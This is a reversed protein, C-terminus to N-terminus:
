RTKHINSTQEEKKSDLFLEHRSKEEMLFEIMVTHLVRGFLRLDAM